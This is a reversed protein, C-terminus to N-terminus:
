QAMLMAPTLTLSPSAVVVSSLPKVVLADGLSLFAADALVNVLLADM